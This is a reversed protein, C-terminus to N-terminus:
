VLGKGVIFLNIKNKRADIIQKNILVNNLDFFVQKSFKKKFSIKKYNEHKTAFIVM